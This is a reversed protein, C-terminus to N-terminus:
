FFFCAANKECVTDFRLTKTRRRGGLNNQGFISTTDTIETV